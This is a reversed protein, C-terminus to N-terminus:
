KDLDKNREALSHAHNPIIGETWCLVIKYIHAEFNYSFDSIAIISNFLVRNLVKVATM